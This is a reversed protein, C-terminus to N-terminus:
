APEPLRRHYLQRQSISTTDTLHGGRKIERFETAFAVWGLCGSRSAERTYGGGSHMVAATITSDTTPAVGREAAM